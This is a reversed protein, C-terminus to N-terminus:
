FGSATDLDHLMAVAAATGGSEQMVRGDRGVLVLSPVVKLRLASFDVTRIAPTEFGAAGALEIDSEALTETVPLVLRTPTNFGGLDSRSALEALFRRSAACGSRLFVLLTPRDEALWDSPVDIQGGVEYGSVVGNGQSKWALATATVAILSVCAVLVGCSVLRVRRDTM